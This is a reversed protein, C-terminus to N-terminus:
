SLLFTDSLNVQEHYANYNADFADRNDGTLSMMVGRIAKMADREATYQAHNFIWEYWRRKGFSDRLARYAPMFKDYIKEKDAESTHTGSPLGNTVAKGSGAKIANEWWNKGFQHSKFQFDGFESPNIVSGLKQDNTLIGFMWERTFEIFRDYKTNVDVNKIQRRELSFFDGKVTFYEMDDIRAKWENTREIHDQKGTILNAM